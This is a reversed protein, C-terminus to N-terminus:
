QKGCREWDLMLSDSGFFGGHNVEVSGHHVKFSGSSEHDGTTRRGGILQAVDVLPTDVIVTGTVRLPFCM